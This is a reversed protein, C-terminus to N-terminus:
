YEWVLDGESDYEAAIDVMLSNSWGMLYLTGDSHVKMRTLMNRSEFDALAKQAPTM